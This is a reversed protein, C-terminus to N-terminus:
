HILSLDFEVYHPNQPVGNAVTVNVTATGVNNAADRAQATLVHSGDTATTTNWSTSYPATTDLAGLPQGDLLFQVSVVGVNDTATAQVTLTGAVSGGTPTTFTVTPNTLDPPPALTTFTSTPGVTPNGAIDNAKVTFTHLTGPALSSLTITHTTGTVGDTADVCPCAAGAVWSVVGTTPENTTFSVTVGTSTLNSTGVNSIVPPTTDVVVPALPGGAVWATGGTLTGANGGTTSDGAATGTGENFRWYAVLGTTTTPVETLRTSQVEAQTRALNWLRMEELGGDFQYWSPGERGITVPATTNRMAVYTASNQRQLAVAVGDVYMTLGNAATAGGRGDYTVAVHHWGGVLAAQSTSTMAFVQANSSADMMAFQLFGSVVQLKWERTGNTAGWKGVLHHRTMADPRFLTEVTFARDVTGSSFTLADTDNVNVFDDIGDFELYHPTSTPTVTVTVTAVNSLVGADNVQFTFSDTGFFGAAPTYTFSGGNLTVAGAPITVTGHSAQAVVVFQVTGSDIDTASLVGSLPTDQPTTASGNSAVPADNVPTITLSVTAINSTQGAATVQFTFSDAGNQNASPTYTFAGTATNTLVVAGRTPPTVISFTLAGGDPDAGSLTGSVPTDELTTASGPSTSPVDDVAAITLSVTASNSTQGGATVQFTFTDSGNQNVSPTYTFAGTATNTVVVSGRSPPTVISFTLADGDVDSGTLTGSVATDESTALAGDVATPADNVATITLTVTAVNSAQGGATVQFTFSDAGNQNASPTYTFAGTATNTIVVTGRTPQTVVSFTLVDGDPDSASLTGSVPTDELTTTAGNIAVPPADSASQTVTVTQLAVTISGSRAAGLNPAVAFAVTGSASGGVPPTLTIWPANSIATWATGPYDFTVVVSSASGAAPVSVAQPAVSAGGVVFIDQVGNTDGSVLNTALSRFAVFRGDASISSTENQDNGSAGGASVSVRRVEGTAQDSVVVTNPTSLGVYPNQYQTFAVFRGDASISPKLSNDSGDIGDLLGIRSTHGTVLNRVFLDVRGNTDGAVLNSAGSNFVVYRGDASIMAFTSERNGQSGDDAVSVRTTQGTARDHVFVDAWDNTDNPALNFASSYFAVFRGDASISASRSNSGNMGRSEAGDSAVSVRSTQGALRDRVFVDWSSNTDGLVLNTSSSTFAVFRGDASVAYDVIVGANAETGDTALNIRSTQGTQRDRAFLDASGNGDGPVLDSATSQFLVIRGDASIVPRDVSGNGRQGTSTVNVLELLGTARDLVFVDATGVTDGPVLNSASSLFAVFRGDASLSVDFSAGDAQAGAPGASARVTQGPWQPTGAVIIILATATSTHGGSDTMSFTFTDTGVAGVSPTFTFAGSSIDTLAFTGKTPPTVVGFTFSDGEPDLAALVGTVPTGNTVVTNGQAFPADNVASITLTVTAVASAQGGATVRFTFSDTGNQNFSPTYTFAGTATNTLVAIGRAPPTVVSFVPPDGDVDVGNLTGVIPTDETTTLSAGQVTPLDNVPTVTLSVTAVNSTQGG